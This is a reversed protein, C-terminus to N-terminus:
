NQRMHNPFQDFQDPQGQLPQAHNMIQEILEDFVEYEGVEPSVGIGDVAHLAWIGSSHLTERTEGWASTAIALILGAIVGSKWM